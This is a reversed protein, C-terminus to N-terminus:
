VRLAQAMQEWVGRRQWARYCNSVVHWAPFRDEPLARWAIGRRQVYRIADVVERPDFTRPRGRGGNREFLHAVAAWQGETLDSTHRM